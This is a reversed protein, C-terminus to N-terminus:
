PSGPAGTVYALPPAGPGTKPTAVVSSVQNLCPGGTVSVSVTGVGTRTAALNQGFVTATPNIVSIEGWAGVAGAGTPGAPGAPGRQNWSLGTQARGCRKQITLVRTTKAVCGHITKGSGSALAYGSGALLAGCLAAVALQAIKASSTM